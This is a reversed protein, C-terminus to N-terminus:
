KMIEASTVALEVKYCNADEKDLHYSDTFECSKIKGRLIVQEHEGYSKFEEYLEEYKSQPLLAGTIDDFTVEPHEETFILAEIAILQRNGETSASTESSCTNLRAAHYLEEFRSSFSVCIEVQIFKEEESLQDYRELLAWLEDVSMNKYTIGNEDTYDKAVEEQESAEETETDESVDNNEYATTDTVTATDSNKSENNTRSEEAATQGGCAALSFVMALALLLAIIKKM